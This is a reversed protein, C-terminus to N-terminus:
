PQFSPRPDPNPSPSSSPSPSPQDRSAPPPLSATPPQTYCAPHPLRVAAHAALRGRGGRPALERVRRARAQRLPLLPPPHPLPQAAPFVFPNPSLSSPLSSPIPPTLTPVLPPPHECRDRLRCLADAVGGVMTLYDLTWPLQDDPDLSSLLGRTPQGSALLQRVAGLLAVNM